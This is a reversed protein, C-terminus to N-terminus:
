VGLEWSAVPLQCLTRHVRCELRCVVKDESYSVAGGAGSPSLGTYPFMNTCLGGAVITVEKEM